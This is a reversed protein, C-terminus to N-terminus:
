SRTSAIPSARRPASAIAPPPSRTPICRSCASGPRWCRGVLLGEPREIAVRVVRQASLLAILAEIGSEDHAFRQEALLEGTREDAVRVDHWEAAWDIGSIAPM